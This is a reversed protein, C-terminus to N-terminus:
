AAHFGEGTMMLGLEVIDVNRNEMPVSLKGAFMVAIQDSLALVEELDESILLIAAGAQRAALLMGHVASIAGEDLGRSPQCAIIIGPERALWRGILLKQVNGGSLLRAPQALSQTRVDNNKCITQAQVVCKGKDLQSFRQVLAGNQTESLVANEWVTMDGVIGERNRDEPIYAIGAQMFALPSAKGIPKQGITIHGASPHQHGSMVEALAKQGNGAVGVIGTIEGGRLTLNVARLAAVSLSSAVTSVDGLTMRTAGPNSTGRQPREIPRGVIMEGLQRKDAQSTVVDGVTEGSRLVIIRDSIELIEHLKHSIIIVALGAAVMRKISVFLSSVEQPTLSATPEDLILLECDNYLTKLIELRQKEGVSLDCVPRDPEIDLGFREALAVLKQRAQARHLIPRWLAQAGILTNELVTLNEALTFHQHVMGIGAEIAARPDGARLASGKFEVLGSDALYHGFIINMLTTKGAGNEGLIALVEGSAVEFSVNRNAMLAGFSKSINAVKLLPPV